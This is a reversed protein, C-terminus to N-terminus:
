LRERDYDFWGKPVLTGVSSSYSAAITEGKRLFLKSVM